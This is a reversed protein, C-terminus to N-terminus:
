ISVVFLLYHRVVKCNLSACAGLSVSLLRCHLVAGVKAIAARGALLMSLLLANGQNRWPKQQHEAKPMDASQGFLSHYKWALTGQRSMWFWWMQGYYGFRSWQKEVNSHQTTSALKLFCTKPKSWGLCSLSLRVLRMMQRLSKPMAITRFVLVHQFAGLHVLTSLLFTTLLWIVLKWCSYDRCELWQDRKFLWFTHLRNYDTREITQCKNM